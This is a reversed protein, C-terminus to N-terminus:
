LLLFLLGIYERLAQIHIQKFYSLYKRTIKHTVRHTILIFEFIIMEIELKTFM